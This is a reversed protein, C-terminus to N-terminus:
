VYAYLKHDGQVVTYRPQAERIIAELVVPDDPLHYTCISLKPAFEKLINRAGRLMMRESGEIDAKIFDVRPIKNEAVFEDLTTAEVTEFDSEGASALSSEKAEDARISAGINQRDVLFKLTEKKDSLAYPLVSFDGNFAANKSLYKDRIYQSPEFAHPQCGKNAAIASFFGMNAGCDMVVDGPELRVGDWEYEGEPNIGRAIEAMSDGLMYSLLVDCFVAGFIAAEAENDAPTLRLGNFDFVGSAEDYWPKLKEYFITMPAEIDSKKLGLLKRAMKSGVLFTLDGARKQNELYPLWARLYEAMKPEFDNKDLGAKICDRAAPALKRQRRKYKGSLREGIKRILKM